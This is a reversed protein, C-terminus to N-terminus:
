GQAEEKGDSHRGIFDYLKSAIYFIIVTGILGITTEIASEVVISIIKKLM